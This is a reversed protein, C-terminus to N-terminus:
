LKERLDIKGKAKLENYGIIIIKGEYGVFVQPETGGHELWKDFAYVQNWELRSLPFFYTSSTKCDGVVTVGNKMAIIDFPQAGRSDPTIFHVWWGNSKLRSVVEKEFATGLKKNNM